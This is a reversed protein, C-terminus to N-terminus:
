FCYNILSVNKKKIFKIIIIKYKYTDVVIIATNLEIDKVLFQSYKKSSLNIHEIHM